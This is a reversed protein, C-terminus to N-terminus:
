LGLLATLTKLHELEPDQNVLVGEYGAEQARLINRPDDDVLIVRSFPESAEGSPPLPLSLERPGGSSKLARELREAVLAQAREIHLQKGVSGMEDIGLEILHTGTLHLPPRLKPDPDGYTIIPRSLWSTVERSAGRSRLERVGSQLLALPLEPYASFTCVAIGHGESLLKFLLEWLADGGYPGSEKLYSIAKYCARERAAGARIMQTVARYMHEHTLTLDFDFCILARAGQDQARSM